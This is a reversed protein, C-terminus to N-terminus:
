IESLSNIAFQLKDLLPEYANQGDVTVQNIKFVGKWACTDRSFSTSIKKSGVILDLGNEMESTELIDQAVARFPFWTSRYKAYANYQEELQEIDATHRISLAACKFYEKLFEIPTLPEEADIFKQVEM